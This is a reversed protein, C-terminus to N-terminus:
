EIVDVTKNIGVHGTTPVDHNEVLIKQCLEHPVMMLQEGDMVKYLIGQPSIQMGRHTLKVKPLKFDTRLVPDAKQEEQVTKLQGKKVGTLLIAAFLFRSDKTEQGEAPRLRHQQQIQNKEKSQAQVQPRSRSLADTVINAKGPQYTIKSQISQFLVLRLWRTQSRSM